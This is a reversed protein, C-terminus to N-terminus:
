KTLNLGILFLHHHDLYLYFITLNLSSQDDDDLSVDNM